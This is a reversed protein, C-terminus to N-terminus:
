HIDVTEVTLISSSIRLAKAAWLIYLCEKKQSKKERTEWFEWLVWPSCQYLMTKIASQTRLMRFCM